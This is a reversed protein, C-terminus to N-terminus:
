LTLCRDSVLVEALLNDWDSDTMEETVAFCTVENDNALADVINQVGARDPYLGADIIAIKM